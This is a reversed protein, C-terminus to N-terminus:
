ICSNFLNRREIEHLLKPYAQQFHSPKLLTKLDSWSKKQKVSHDTAEKRIRNIQSNLSPGYNALFQKIFEM